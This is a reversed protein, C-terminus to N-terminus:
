TLAPPPGFSTSPKTEGHTGHKREASISLNARYAYGPPRARSTSLTRHQQQSEASWQLSSFYSLLFRLSFAFLLHGTGCWPFTLCGGAGRFPEPERVCVESQSIWPCHCVLPRDAIGLECQFPVPRRLDHVCYYFAVTGNGACVRMGARVHESSNACTIGWKGPCFLFSLAEM